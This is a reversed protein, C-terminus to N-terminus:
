TLNYLPLSKTGPKRDQLNPFGLKALFRPDFVYYRDPMPGSGARDMCRLYSAKIGDAGVRADRGSLYKAACEFTGDRLWGLMREHDLMARSNDANEGYQRRLAADYKTKKRIRRVTEVADWREVDWQDQRYRSVRNGARGPGEAKERLLLECLLMSAEKAVWNPAETGEEACYDLAAVVALERHVTLKRLEELDRNHVRDLASNEDRDNMPIDGARIMRQSINSRPQTSM